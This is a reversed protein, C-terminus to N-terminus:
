RAPPELGARRENTALEAMEEEDTDLLSLMAPRVLRYTVYSGALLALLELGVGLKGVWHLPWLAATIGNVLADVFAGVFFSILWGLGFSIRGLGSLDVALDMGELYVFTLATVLGYYGGGRSAWLKRFRPRAMRGILRLLDRM